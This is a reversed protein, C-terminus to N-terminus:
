IISRKRVDAFMEVISKNGWPIREKSTSSVAYTEAVADIYMTFTGDDGM